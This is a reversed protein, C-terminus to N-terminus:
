MASGIVGIINAQECVHMAQFMTQMQIKSSTLLISHEVCVHLKFL